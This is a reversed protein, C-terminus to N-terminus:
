DTPRKTPQRINKLGIRIGPLHRIYLARKGCVENPPADWPWNECSMERQLFAGSWFSRIQMLLFKCWCIQFMEPGHMLFQEGGSGEGTKAEWPRGDPLYNLSLTNQTVNIYPLTRFITRASIEDVITELKMNSALTTWFNITFNSVM